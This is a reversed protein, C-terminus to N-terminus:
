LASRLDTYLVSEVPVDFVLEITQSGVVEQWVVENPGDFLGDGNWDVFGYVFAPVTETTNTVDVTFVAPEGTFLMNPTTIGDEDDEGDADDGDADPSGQGDPDTDVVEGFFVEPEESIGHRAGDEGNETLYPDDLDGYDLGKM